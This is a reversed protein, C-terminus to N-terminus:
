IIGGKTFDGFNNGMLDYQTGGGSKGFLSNAIGKRIKAPPSLIITSYNTPLNPLAYKEQIQQPTLGDVDEKKMIWQGGPETVGDTYVRVFETDETLEIVEVDTGPKYPPEDGRDIFEKNVEDASVIEKVKYSGKPNEIDTDPKKGKDPKRNKDPTEKKKGKSKDIDKTKDPKKTSNTNDKGKSKSTDPKKSKDPKKTTNTKSSDGKGKTTDVKKGKDPKKTTNTKSSDGKGKTTDANKTKTPKKASKTKSSDGKSKSTDVGKGKGKPSKVKPPKTRVKKIAKFIGKGGIFDPLFFSVTYVAGMEKWMTAFDTVMTEVVGLPDKLIGLVMDSTTKLDDTVCKPTKGFPKTGAVIMLNGLYNLVDGGFKVLGSFNDDLANLVKFVYNAYRTVQKEATTAHDDDCNEYDKVKAYIDNIKKVDSKLSNFFTTEGAGIKNVQRNNYEIASSKEKYEESTFTRKYLSQDPYKIDKVYGEISSAKGKVKLTDVKTLLNPKDPTIYVGMDKAYNDLLTKVDTVQQKYKGIYKLVQTQEYKMGTITSANSAAFFEDLSKVANEMKNLTKYFSSLEESINNYTGYNIKIHQKFM